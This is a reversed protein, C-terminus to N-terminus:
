ASMEWFRSALGLLCWVTIPMDFYGGEELRRLSLHSLDLRSARPRGSEAAGPDEPSISSGGTGDSWEAPPGPTEPLSVGQRLLPVNSHSRGRMAAGRPGAGCSSTSGKREPAARGDGAEAASTSCRAQKRDDAAGGRPSQAFSATAGGLGGQRSTGPGSGLQEWQRGGAPLCVMSRGRGCWRMRACPMLPYSPDYV